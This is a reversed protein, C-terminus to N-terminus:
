PQPTWCKSVPVNAGTTSQRRRTFEDFGVPHGSFEAVARFRPWSQLFAAVRDRPLFVDLYEEDDKIFGHRRSFRCDGFNYIIDAVLPIELPPVAPSLPLPPHDM